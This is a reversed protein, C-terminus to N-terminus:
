PLRTAVARGAEDDAILSHTVGNLRVVKGVKRPANNALPTATYLSTDWEQTALGQAVAADKM